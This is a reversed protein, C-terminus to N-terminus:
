LFRILLHNYIVGLCDAHLIKYIKKEETATLEMDLNRKLSYSDPSFIDLTMISHHKKRFNQFVKPSNAGSLFRSVTSTSVCFVESIKEYNLGRSHLDKLLFRLSDQDFFDITYDDIDVLRLLNFAFVKNEPVGYLGNRFIESLKIFAPLYGSNGFTVFLSICRHIEIESLSLKSSNLSILKDISSMAGLYAEKEEHSLMKYSLNLPSTYIPVSAFLEPTGSPWSLIPNYKKLKPIFEEDERFNEMSFSISFSVLVLVVFFLHKFHVKEEMM